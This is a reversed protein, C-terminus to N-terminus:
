SLWIMALFSGIGAVFAGVTLRKLKPAQWAMMFMIAVPFIFSALLAHAKMVYLRTMM